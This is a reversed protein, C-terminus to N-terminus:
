PRSREGTAILREVCNVSQGVNTSRQRPALRFFEVLSEADKVLDSRPSRIELLYSWVGLKYYAWDEFAGAAPYIAGGHTGVRYGNVAAAKRAWDVMHHHDLTEYRRVTTGWPFTLTGVYGHVSVAAIINEREVLEALLATSRLQFDQKVQCADEYDRNSDYVRGDAGTETRRAVRYGSVNLVPIVFYAEDPRMAPLMKEVFHLPVEAAARENGHHTGVVLHRRTASRADGLVIGLIDEGQDNQGLTFLATNPLRDLERLRQLIRGYDDAPASVSLSMLLLAALVRIM